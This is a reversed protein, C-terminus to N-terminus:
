GVDHREYLKKLMSNLERAREEAESVKLEECEYGLTERMLKVNEEIYIVTGNDKVRDIGDIRGGAENIEIAREPSIGKLVVNAGRADLRTPYGGSLGNPGAVCSHVEGTDYYLALVHKLFSSATRMQDVLPGKFSSMAGYGAQQYIRTIMENPFRDTVDKGDVVIKLWYPGDMVATYYTGHHGVGYVQVSRAPVGIERAVIRKIRSVGLDMNGGGYTPALGIRSLVVNTLDPYAGNVVKTEIGSKKIAQMLKHALTLHNPLWPGIPCIKKYVELPLLRTVWWSGLSALNCVVTPRVERLLNSTGDVDFLDIKKFSLDPYNGLNHAIHLSEEVERQGKDVDIDAGVVGINSTMSAILYMMDHGVSGASGILLIKEQM